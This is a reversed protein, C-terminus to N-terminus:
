TQKCMLTKMRAIELIFHDYTPENFYLSTLLLKHPNYVCPVLQETDIFNSVSKLFRLSHKMIVCMNVTFLSHILSICRFNIVNCYEPRNCTHLPDMLHHGRSVQGCTRPPTESCSIKSTSQSGWVKEM